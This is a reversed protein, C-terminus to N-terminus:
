ITTPIESKPKFINKLNDFREDLVKVIAQNPDITCFPFNEAPVSQKSILNFTTSKGINAM